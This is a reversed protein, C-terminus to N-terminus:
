SNESRRGVAYSRSRDDGGTGRKPLHLYAITFLGPRWQLNCQQGEAWTVSLSLKSSARQPSNVRARGVYLRLALYGRGVGHRGTPGRPSGRMAGVQSRVAGHPPLFARAASSRGCECTGQTAQVHRRGGRKGATGITSCVLGRDGARRALSRSRDPSGLLRGRGVACRTSAQKEVSTWSRLPVQLCTAPSCNGRGCTNSGGRGEVSCATGSPAKRTTPKSGPISSMSALRASRRERSMATRRRYAGCTGQTQRVFPSGRRGIQQTAKSTRHKHPGRLFSTERPGPLTGHGSVGKNGSISM